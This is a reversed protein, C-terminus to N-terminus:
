NNENVGEECWNRGGGKALYLFKILFKVGLGKKSGRGGIGEKNCPMSRTKPGAQRGAKNYKLYINIFYVRVNLRWM